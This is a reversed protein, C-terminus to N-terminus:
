KLAEIVTQNGTNSYWVKVLKLGSANLLNSFNRETREKGGLGQMCIDLAYMYNNVGSVEPIVVEGILLTSDQAM